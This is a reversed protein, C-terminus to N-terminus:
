SGKTDARKAAGRHQVDGTRKSQLRKRKPLPGALGAPSADVHVGESGRQEGPREASDEGSSVGQAREDVSDVDRRWEARDDRTQPSHRVSAGWKGQPTDPIDREYELERHNLDKFIARLNECAYELEHISVARDVLIFAAHVRTHLSKYGKVSYGKMAERIANKLRVADKMITDFDNM